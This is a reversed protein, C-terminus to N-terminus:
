SEAGRQPRRVARAAPPCPLAPRQGRDQDKLLAEILANLADADDALDDLLTPVDHLDPAPRERDAIASPGTAEPAAVPAEDPAANTGARVAALALRTRITRTTMPRYDDHWGHRDIAPLLM